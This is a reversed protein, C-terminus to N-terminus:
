VVVVVLQTFAGDDLKRIDRVEYDTGDIKIAQDVTLGDMPQGTELDRSSIIAISERVLIQAGSDDVDIREEEDFIGRTVNTGWDIRLGFDALLAVRDEDGFRM